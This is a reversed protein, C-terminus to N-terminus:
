RRVRCSQPSSRTKQLSLIVLDIVVVKVTLAKGVVKSGVYYCGNCRDHHRSEKNLKDQHIILILGNPYQSSGVRSFLTSANHSTIWELLHLASASQRASVNVIGSRCYPYRRSWERIHRQLCSLVHLHHCTYCLSRLARLTFLLIELVVVPRKRFTIFM